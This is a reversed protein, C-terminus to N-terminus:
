AKKYAGRHRIGEVPVKEPQDLYRYNTWQPSILRYKLTSGAIGLAEVAACGSQYKVGDIMIPRYRKKFKESAKQGTTRAAIHEPKWKYGTMRESQAKAVEVKVTKGKHAAGIKAHWEATHIVKKGAESLRQRTEETVGYVRDTSSAGGPCGNMCLPDNLIEETIIEKEREFAHDRSKCMELIERKHKERGHKRISRAIYTGSGLYKDHLNNTSHVGIYYKGDDRVTMYVFHFEYEGPKKPNILQSANLVAYAAKAEKRTLYYQLIELIHNEIGQERKSISLANGTGTFQGFEDYSHVGYFVKNTNACTVKYTIHNSRNEARTVM